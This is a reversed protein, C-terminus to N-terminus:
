RRLYGIIGRAKEPSNNEERVTKKIMGYCCFWASVSRGSKGTFSRKVKRCFQKYSYGNITRASKSRSEMRLVTRKGMFSRLEM